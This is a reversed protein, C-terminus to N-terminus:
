YLYRNQKISYILHNLATTLCIEESEGICFIINGNDQISYPLNSCNYLYDYAEKDNMYVLLDETGLYPVTDCTFKFNDGRSDEIKIVTIYM